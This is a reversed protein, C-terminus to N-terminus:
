VDSTGERSAPSGAWQNYEDLLTQIPNPVLEHLKRTAQLERIHHDPGILAQLVTRLAEADVEIRM